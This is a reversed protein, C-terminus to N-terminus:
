KPTNNRIFESYLYTAGNNKFLQILAQRNPISSVNLALVDLPSLYEKRKFHTYTAYSDATAGNEILLEAIKINDKSRNSCVAHIPKIGILDGLISVANSNINAGKDLLLEVIEFTSFECALMLPRYFFKPKEGIPFSAELNAGRELYENVKNKNKNIIYNFLKKDKQTQTQFISKVRGLFTRVGPSTNAKRTKNSNYKPSINDVRTGTFGTGTSNPIKIKLSRVNNM